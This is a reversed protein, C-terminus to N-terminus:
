VDAFLDNMTVESHVLSCYGKKAVGYTTVLTTHIASRAGTEMLFTTRKRDLAAAEAKGIEYPHKLYKMECLNIVGDRRSILLDIQVGPKQTKSRWSMTSTSVGLIGLKAKIQRIHIRCVLEFAYGCWARHGGDEAYNTWFYEDKSHNDRIYRLYFLTFSDMLYYTAENKPKTFDSFREIFDCQELENLAETLHGNPLLRTAKSIENRTMGAKKKSLAEVIELHKHPNNFLSKYLEEFENRLPAGEAFCLKDVNQSFSLEKDFLNLYYPIGGFIMYSETIQFRTAEIRRDKFFAECESLSFPALHIRGTVRNHLGGRNRFINKTIWSTASGCCIFLIEPVASAYSNWFYDFASLFDSRGADLWPMEDIFVVKRKRTTKDLLKELKNFADRWNQSCPTQGGGYQVIAKDFNALNEANSSNVEGTFYFAFNNEFHERILYTKGVRRRGYVVILEPRGSDYYRNLEHIERTRGIINM